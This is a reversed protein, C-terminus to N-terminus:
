FFKGIYSYMEDLRYSSLKINKLFEVLFLIGVLLILMFFLVPVRRRAVTEKYMNGM